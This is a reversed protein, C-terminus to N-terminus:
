DTRSLVLLLDRHLYKLLQMLSLILLTPQLHEPVTKVNIGKIGLGAADMADIGVTIKNNMDADAGVHLAFNLTKKLM